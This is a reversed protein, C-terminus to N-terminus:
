EGRPPDIRHILAVLPAACILFVGLLGSFLGMGLLIQGVKEGLPNCGRAGGYYTFMGSCGDELDAGAAVLPASIGLGILGFFLARRWSLYFDRQVREARVVVIAM